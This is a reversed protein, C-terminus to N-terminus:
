VDATLAFGERNARIKAKSIEEAQSHQMESNQGNIGRPGTSAQVRHGTVPSM